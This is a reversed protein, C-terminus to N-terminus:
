LQALLCHTNTETFWLCRIVSFFCSFIVNNPRLFVLQDVRTVVSSICSRHAPDAVPNSCSVASSICCGIDNDACWCNSQTMHMVFGLLRHCPWTGLFVHRLSFILLPWVLTYRALNNLCYWVIVFQGVPGLEVHLTNESSSPVQLSDPFSGCTGARGLKWICLM